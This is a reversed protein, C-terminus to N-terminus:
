AVGRKYVWRNNESYIGSLSRLVLVYSKALNLHLYNTESTLWSSSHPLSVPCPLCGVSSANFLLDAPQVCHSVVTIGASQSASAPPDGSTPLELGAQAVYHFGLEVLFVFILRSHHCSGTIGAVRLASASSDDSGPLHLNCHALITGDCELRHSLTLSQRLFLYIIFLSM